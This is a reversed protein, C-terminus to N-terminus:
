LEESGRTVAAFEEEAKSVALGAIHPHPAATKVVDGRHDGALIAAVLDADDIVDGRAYGDFQNVVVLHYM